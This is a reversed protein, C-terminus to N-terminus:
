QGFLRDLVPRLATDWDRLIHDAGAGPQRRVAEAIGQKLAEVTPDCCIISDAYRDLSVKRGYKNTVVIAGAAALDLPPYSPHPTAMLSLGVDITRILAIYDPWPLNQHLEPRVDGPLRIGALDRGAFHFNWEAPDLVGAEISESIAQLGCWYLNRLNHPRAYFFFNRKERHAARTERESFAPFAPEFWVGHTAINPLAEPGETLHEFLLQSNVVIRIRDDALTEQCRLREDGHAYFMREDEQLLYIIRSPEVVQRVSRTTWWSTTLFLEGGCVELEDSGDVPAYAFDTEEPIGVGLAKSVVSFNAVDPAQTRTVLRLAAGTRRAMAAALVIATGVGGFMSGESLSDTVMTIRNLRGPVHLVRIPQIQQFRNEQLEVPEPVPAAFVVPAAVPEPPPPPPPPKRGTLLKAARIPWSIRWSTSTLFSQRMQEVAAAGDRHAYDLAIRASALEYNLTNVTADLEQIRQRLPEVAPISQLRLEYEVRRRELQRRLDDTARVAAAHDDRATRLEAETARLKEMTDPLEAMASAVEAERTSLDRRADALMATWVSSLRDALSPALGITELSEPAMQFMAAAPNVVPTEVGSMIRRYPHMKPRALREVVVMSDYFALRAVSRNLRHLHRAEGVTLSEQEGIHDFNVAEVLRKFWEIAADPKRFGGGFDPNYSCHLDEVVYLGGPTLRPFLAGFTAVIDPSRHSGDDIIIDFTEAGLMQELAAPDAANGVHVSVNGALGLAGCREDIDIGVIRSGEPLYRSWLQLSGGNQVGIELLNVPRGGALFRSLETEYVSIYQEWKDSLNGRHGVFLDALRQSVHTLNM